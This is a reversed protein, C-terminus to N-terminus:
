GGVGMFFPKNYQITNYQIQISLVNNIDIDIDKFFSSRFSFFYTYPETLLPRCFGISNKNKYQCIGLNYQCDRDSPTLITNVFERNTNVSILNSGKM